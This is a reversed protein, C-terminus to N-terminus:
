PMDKAYRNSSFNTPRQVRAPVAGAAYVTVGNCVLAALRQPGAQLALRLSAVTDTAHAALRNRGADIGVWVTLGQADPGEVHVRLPARECHDIVPQRAAPAEGDGPQAPTSAVCRTDLLPAAGGAQPIGCSELERARDREPVTVIMGAGVAAAGHAMSSEAHAFQRQWGAAEIAPAVQGARAAPLAAIPLDDLRLQM